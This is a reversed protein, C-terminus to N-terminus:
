SSMKKIAWLVIRMLYIGLFCFLSLFYIFNIRNGSFYEILNVSVNPILITFMEYLLYGLLFGLLLTLFFWFVERAISKWRAAKLQAGINKGASQQSKYVARFTKRYLDRETRRELQKFMKDVGM